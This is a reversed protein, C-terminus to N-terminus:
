GSRLSLIQGLKVTSDEQASSSWPRRYIFHRGSVESQAAQMKANVAEIGTAAEDLKAKAAEVASQATTLQENAQDIEAQREAAVKRAAELEGQLATM